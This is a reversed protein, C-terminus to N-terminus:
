PIFSFESYIPQIYKISEAGKLFFISRRRKGNIPSCDFPWNTDVVFIGRLMLYQHISEMASKLLEYDKCYIVSALAM